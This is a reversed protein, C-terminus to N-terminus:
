SEGNVITEDIQLDIERLKQTLENFDHQDGDILTDDIASLLEERALLLTEYDLADNVTDALKKPITDNWTAHPNDELVALYEPYHWADEFDLEVFLESSWNLRIEHFAQMADKFTHGKKYFRFSPKQNGKVSMYIGRPSKDVNEVFHTKELM